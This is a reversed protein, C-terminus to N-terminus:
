QPREDGTQFLSPSVAVSASALPVITLARSPHPHLVLRGETCAEVAHLLPKGDEEDALVFRDAEREGAGEEGRIGPLAVYEVHRDAPVGRRCFLRPPPHRLPYLPQPRPSLAGWEKIGEGAERSRRHLIPAVDEDDTRAGGAAGGCSVRRLCFEVDEQDILSSLDAQGDAAPLEVGRGFHESGREGGGGHGVFGIEGPPCDPAGDGDGGAAPLVPEVKGAVGEVPIREVAAERIGGDTGAGGERQLRCKAAPVSPLDDGVPACDLGADNDSCVAREWQDGAGGTHLPAGDEGGGDGAPDVPLEAVADTEVEPVADGRAPVRPDERLLAAGVDPEAHLSSRRGDGEEQSGEERPHPKDAAVDPGPEDGNGAGYRLGDPLVDDRDAVGGALDDGGVAPPNRGRHDAPPKGADRRGAVQQVVFGEAGVLM